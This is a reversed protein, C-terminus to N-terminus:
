LEIKPGGALASRYATLFDCPTPFYARLQELAEFRYTKNEVNVWVGLIGEEGEVDSKWLIVILSPGFPNMQGPTYLGFEALEAIGLNTGPENYLRRYADPIFSLDCGLLIENVLEWTSHGLPLPQKFACGALLLSGVLSAFGAKRWM